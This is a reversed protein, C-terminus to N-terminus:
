KIFHFRFVDNKPVPSVRTQPLRFRLVSGPLEHMRVSKTRTRTAFVFNSLTCFFISKIIIVGMRGSDIKNRFHVCGPTSVEKPIISPM